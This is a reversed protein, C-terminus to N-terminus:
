IVVNTLMATSTPWYSGHYWCQFRSDDIDDHNELVDGGLTNNIMIPRRSHIYDRDFEYRYRVDIWLRILSPM